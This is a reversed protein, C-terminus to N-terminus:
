SNIKELMQRVRNNMETENEAGYVLIAYADGYNNQALLVTYHEAESSFYKGGLITIGKPVSIRGATYLNDCNLWQQNETGDAKSYNLIFEPLGMANLIDPYELFRNMLLYLDYVTSYQNEDSVGTVNAFHTNTMGLEQAKQNMLEVFAEASGGASRALALCADQASSVLVANYLQNVTVQTDSSLGCSRFDNGYVMDESAITISDEPNLKDYATLVTMLQTVKGPSIREYLGTAFPIEKEQIAFLGAREGEKAEVGELPTEAEGVCLTDALGKGVPYDDGAMTVFIQQSRNYPLVEKLKRNGSVLFIALAGFLLVLILLVVLFLTKIMKQQHRKQYRSPKKKQKKSFKDICKM